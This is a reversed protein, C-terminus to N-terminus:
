YQKKMSNVPDERATWYTKANKDIKLKLIDLRFLKLLISTPIIALVYLIFIVLPSVFFNIVKGISLWVRSPFYLLRPFLFALLLFVFSTAGFYYNLDGSSSLMPLFSLFGFVLSFVVGFERERRNVIKM